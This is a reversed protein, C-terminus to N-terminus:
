AVARLEARWLPVVPRFRILDVAVAQAKIQVPWVVEALARAAEADGSTQLTMHPVWSEPRYHPEIEDPSILGCVARQMARLENGSCGLWVVDTGDFRDAPGIEMDLVEGWAQQTLKRQLEGALNEDQVVTLTVHPLYGLDIMSSSIGAGALREWLARVAATTAGDFLLSVALGM